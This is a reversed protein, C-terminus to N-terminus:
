EEFYGSDGMFDSGPEKKTTIQLTRYRRIEEMIMQHLLEVDESNMVEEIYGFATQYDKFLSFQLYDLAMDIAKKENSKPKFIEATENLSDIVNHNQSFSAKMAEVYDDASSSKKRKKAPKKKEQPEPEEEDYTDGYDEEDVIDQDSYDDMDNQRSEKRKEKFVIIGVVIAGIVLLAAFFIMALIIMNRM